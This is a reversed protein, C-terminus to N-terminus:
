KKAIDLDEIINKIDNPTLLINIEHFSRREKVWENIIEKTKDKAIEKEILPTMEILSRAPIELRETLPLYRKKYYEEIEEISVSVRSYFLNEILKKSMIKKSLIERLEDWSMDLENLIELVRDLGGLEFIMREEEEVYDEERIEERETIEKQIFFFDVIENLCNMVGENTREAKSCIHLLYSAKLERFTIIDSDVTAVIKDWFIRQSLVFLFLISFNM